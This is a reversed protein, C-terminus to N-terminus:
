IGPYELIRCGIEERKAETALTSNTSTVPSPIQCHELATRAPQSPGQTGEAVRMSSQTKEALLPAQLIHPFVIGRQPYGIRWYNLSLLILYLMNHVHSASCSILSYQVVSSWLSNQRFRVFDWGRLPKREYQVLCFRTFTTPWSRPM